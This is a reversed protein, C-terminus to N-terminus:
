FREGVAGTMQTNHDDFCYTLGFGLPIPFRWFRYWVSGGVGSKEFAQGGSWGRATEIYTVGEWLGQTTIRFVHTYMLNVGALRDVRFERAYTGRMGADGGGSSMARNNPLNDGTAGTLRLKLVQYTSWTLQEEFRAQWYSYSFDSGTWGAAFHYAAGGSTDFRPRPLPQIRHAVDALGYGLIVGLPDQVIPDSTAWFEAFGESQLGADGPDGPSPDTYSVRNRDWGANLGMNPLHNADRFLPAGLTARIADVHKRYSEAIPGLHGESDVDQPGRLSSVASFAGDAYLREFYDRHRGSFIASWGYWEAAAQGSVVGGGSLGAFTLQESQRFINKAALIAGESSSGSGGILAPFPVVFWGDEVSIRVVAGGNPATSSSIEVSKFQHLSFMGLRARELGDPPLPDGEQFPLYRRLLSESTRNGEFVIKEVVPGTSPDARAPFSMALLLLIV